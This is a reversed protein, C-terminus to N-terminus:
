ISIFHSTSLESPDLGQPRVGVCHPVLETSRRLAETRRKYGTIQLGLTPNSKSNAHTPKTLIVIGSM